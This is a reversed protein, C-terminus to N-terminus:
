ILNIKLRTIPQCDAFHRRRRWVSRAVVCTRNADILSAVGAKDGIDHLDSRSSGQQTFTGAFSIM